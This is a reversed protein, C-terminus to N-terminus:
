EDEHSAAAIARRPLRSRQAMARALSDLRHAEMAEFTAFRRLGKAQGPSRSWGFGAFSDNMALGARLAASTAEGVRPGLRRGGVQRM